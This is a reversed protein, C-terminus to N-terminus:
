KQGKFHLLDFTNGPEFYRYEDFVDYNPLLAKHFAQIKGDFLFLAGNYLPKGKGSTNHVPSGIIIGIQPFADAIERAAKECRVIFDDFELFDRPPYGPIALEAFVM